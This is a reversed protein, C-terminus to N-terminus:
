PAAVAWHALLAVFTANADITPENSAWSQWDDSYRMAAPVGTEWLGQLVADGGANQSNAGETIFGPVARQMRYSVNHHPHLMPDAGIGSIYAKALPNVGLLYQIQGLAADNYRADPSLNNALMLYLGHALAIQNSGWQYEFGPERDSLAVGYGSTDIVDLILEAQNQFTEAVAERTEANANQATLYAYLAMPYVNAWVMTHKGDPEISRFYRSFATEYALDGTVRFLEAAAWLRPVEEIGVFDYGGQMPYESVPPNQFGGPPVQEPHADLWTWAQQAAALLTGAYDGDYDAFTHAAQAMVAAFYATDASSVDFVYLQATDEVPLTGFDPFSRTTVKHHVAGDDRQMKLLWDLEWRIEDLLDPLGNGSEPINLSGDGFFDPNANFAYLLQNVAFAATPIYRGFDGADYWGGSVDLPEGDPDDWLVAPELHGAELEVGSTDADHITIGSRQLYFARAALTLPAAYADEGLIFPYSEDGTDLVLRYTGPEALPQFDGRYIEQQADEDYGWHEATGSYVEEGTADEVITFSNVPVTAVFRNRDQPRYGIQSARVVPLDAFVDTITPSENLDTESIVRIDDIWISGDLTRGDATDFAVEFKVVPNPAFETIGETGLWTLREFCRWPLSVTVWDWISGSPTTFDCGFPTVGPSESSTQTEDELHLVLAMPLGEQSARIRLRIGQGAEWNHPFSFDFGPGAYGAAVLQVDLLLAASGNYVLEGDLSAALTSGTDDSYTWWHSAFGDEYSADFDDILTAAAPEEQANVLSIAIAVFFLSSVLVRIM